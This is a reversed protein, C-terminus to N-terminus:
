HCAASEGAISNGIKRKIKTRGAPNRSLKVVQQLPFATLKTRSLIALTVPQQTQTSSPMAIPLAFTLRTVFNLTLSLQM